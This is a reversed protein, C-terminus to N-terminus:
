MFLLLQLFISRHTRTAKRGLTTLSLPTHTPLAVSPREAQRTIMSIRPSVHLGANICASFPWPHYRLSVGVHKERFLKFMRGREDRTRAWRRLIPSHLPRGRFAGTCNSHKPAQGCNRQFGAFLGLSSRCSHNVTHLTRDMVLASSQALSPEM